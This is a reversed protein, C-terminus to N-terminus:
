EVVTLLLQKALELNDRADLLQLCQLVSKCAEINGTVIFHDDLYSYVEDSFEDSDGPIQEAFEIRKQTDTGM